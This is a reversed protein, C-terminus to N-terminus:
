WEDGWLDPDNPKVFTIGENNGSNDMEFGSEYEQLDKITVAEGGKSIIQLLAETDISMLEIAPKIYIKKM